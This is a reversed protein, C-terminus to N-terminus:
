LFTIIKKLQPLKTFLPYIKSSKSKGQTQKKSGVTRRIATTTIIMLMEEDIKSKVYEVVIVKAVCIKAFNYSNQNQIMNWRMKKNDIKDCWTDGIGLTNVIVGNSQRRSNKQLIM